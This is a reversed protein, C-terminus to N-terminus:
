KHKNNFYDPQFQQVNNGYYYFPQQMHKIQNEFQQGLLKANEIIKEHKEKNIKNLEENNLVIHLNEAAMKYNDDNLLDQANKLYFHVNEDTPYIELLKSMIFNLQRRLIEAEM